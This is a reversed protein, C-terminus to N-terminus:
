DGRCQSLRRARRMETFVRKKLDEPVSEWQSTQLVLEQFVGIQHACMHFLQPANCADAHTLLDVISEVSLLEKRTLYVECWQKLHELMFHDALQMLSCVFQAAEFSPPELPVGVTSIAEDTGGTYIQVLM